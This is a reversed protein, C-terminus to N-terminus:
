KQDNHSGKKDELTNVPESGVTPQHGGSIVGTLPDTVVSPHSSPVLDELAYEVLRGEGAETSRRLGPREVLALPRLTLPVSLSEDRQRTAPDLYHPRHQTVSGRELGPRRSSM